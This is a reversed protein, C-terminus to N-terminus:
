ESILGSLAQRVREMDTRLSTNYIPSHDKNEAKSVFGTKLDLYFCASNALFNVYMRSMGNKEWFSVDSIMMKGKFCRIQDIAKEKSIETM